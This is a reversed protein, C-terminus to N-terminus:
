GAPISSTGTSGKSYVLRLYSLGTSTTETSSTDTGTSLIVTWPSGTKMPQNNKLTLANGGLLLNASGVTSDGVYTPGASLVTVEVGNITDTSGENVLKSASTGGKTVKIQAKDSTGGTGQTMVSTLEVVADDFEIGDDGVNLTQEIGTGAVKIETTTASLVTYEEGLLLIRQGKLSGDLDVPTELKTEYIIWQSSYPFVCETSDYGATGDSSTVLNGAQYDFLIANLGGITLKEQNKVATGGFNQIYKSKLTSLSNGGEGSAYFTLSNTTLTDNAYRGLQGELSKGDVANSEVALTVEGVGGAAETMRHDGIESAIGIASVVDAALGSPSSGGTGVAILTDDASGDIVAIGSYFDAVNAALAAGALTSGLMLASGVAAGIRKFTQQMLCEEKKIEM